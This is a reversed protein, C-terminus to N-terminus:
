KYNRSADRSLREDNLFLISNDDLLVASDNCSDSTLIRIPVVSDIMYHTCNGPSGPFFTGGGVLAFGLGGTCSGLFGIKGGLAALADVKALTNTSPLFTLLEHLLDYVAM